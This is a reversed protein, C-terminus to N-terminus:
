LVRDEMVSTVEDLSCLLVDISMSFRGNIIESCLKLFIRNQVMRM